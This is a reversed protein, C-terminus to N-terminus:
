AEDRILPELEAILTPIHVTAVRWILEPDIEGYEHAIVHRQAVIKQWPIQPHTTQFNSSVQRAAEGIIEILREVTWQLDEDNLYQDLPVDCMRDAIKKAHYLMDRLPAIDDSQM